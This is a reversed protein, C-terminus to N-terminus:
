WSRPCSIKGVKNPSWAKSRKQSKKGSGEWESFRFVLILHSDVFADRYNPNGNKSIGDISRDLIGFRNIGQSIRMLIIPRWKGGIMSMSYTIPCSTQSCNSDKECCNKENEM